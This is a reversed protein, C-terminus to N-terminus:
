APQRRFKEIVQRRAIGLGDAGAAVEGPDVGDHKLGRDDAPAQPAVQLRGRAADELEENVALFLLDRKDAAYSFPTGLAVGARQAIERMSTEDYGRGIFLARAAAKIRRLKDQKNLERRSEETGVATPRLPKAKRARRSRKARSM